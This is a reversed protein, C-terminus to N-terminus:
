QDYTNGFNAIAQLLWLQIISKMGFNGYKAVQNSIIPIALTPLHKFYGSKAVHSSCPKALVPLIKFNGYISHDGTWFYGFKAVKPSSWLQWKRARFCVEFNYVSPNEQVYHDRNWSWTDM